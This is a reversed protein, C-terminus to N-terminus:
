LRNKLDGCGLALSYSFVTDCPHSDHRRGGRCPIGLSIPRSATVLAVPWLLGKEVLNNLLVVRGEGGMQRLFREGHASSVEQCTEVSWKRLCQNFHSTQWIRRRLACRSFGQPQLWDCFGDMQPGLPPLPFRALASPRCFLDELVM